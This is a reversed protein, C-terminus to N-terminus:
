SIGGVGERGGKRGNMKREMKGGEGEKRDWRLETKLKHTGIQLSGPMCLQKIHLCPTLSLLLLHIFPPLQLSPLMRTLSCHPRSSRQGGQICTGNSNHCRGREVGEVWRWQSHFICGTWTVHTNEQERPMQRQLTQRGIDLCACFM